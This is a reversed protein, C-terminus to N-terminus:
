DSHATHPLLKASSLGETYLRTGGQTASTVISQANHRLDLLRVNNNNNKYRHLNVCRYLTVVDTIGRLSSILEDRAPACLVAMKDVIFTAYRQFDLAGHEAQQEILELDLVDDISARTRQNHPLMLELMGQLTCFVIYKYTVILYM